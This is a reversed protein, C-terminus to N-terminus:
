SVYTYTYSASMFFGFDYNEHNNMDVHNHIPTLPNLAASLITEKTGTGAVM